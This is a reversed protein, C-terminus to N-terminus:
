EGIDYYDVVYDNERFVVENNMIIDKPVRTIRRRVNHTVKKNWNPLLDELHFLDSARQFDWSVDSLYRIHCDGLNAKCIMVDNCLDEFTSINFNSWKDYQKSSIYEQIDKASNTESFATLSSESPEIVNVIVKDEKKDKFYKYLSVVNPILLVASMLMLVIAFMIDSKFDSEAKLIFAKGLGDVTNSMNRLIVSDKQERKEMTTVSALNKNIKSVSSNLATLKEEVSNTADLNKTVLSAVSEVKKVEKQLLVNNERIGELTDRHVNALIKSAEQATMNNEKSM